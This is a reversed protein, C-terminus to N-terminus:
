LRGIQLTQQRIYRCYFIVPLIVLHTLHIASMVLALMGFGFVAALGLPLDSKLESRYALPNITDGASKIYSGIVGGMWVFGIMMAYSVPAILVELFEIRDSAGVWPDEPQALSIRAISIHDAKDLVNWSILAFIIAAVVGTFAWVLLAQQRAAQIETLM